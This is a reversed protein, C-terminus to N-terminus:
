LAVSTFIMYKSIIIIWRCGYMHKSVVVIKELGDHIVVLIHLVYPSGKQNSFFHLPKMVFYSHGHGGRPRGLRPSRKCIVTKFITDYRIVNHNYAVNFMFIFLKLVSTYLNFIYYMLIM